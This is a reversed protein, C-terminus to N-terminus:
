QTYALLRSMFAVYSRQGPRVLFGKEPDNPAGYLVSDGAEVMEIDGLRTRELFPYATSLIQV